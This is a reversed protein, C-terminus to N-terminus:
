SAAPRAQDYSAGLLRNYDAQSALQVRPRAIAGTVVKTVTPATMAAGMTVTQNAPAGFYIGAVRLANTNSADEAFATLQNLELRRNLQARPVAAFPQAGSANTYSTIITLTGNTRSGYVGTFASM